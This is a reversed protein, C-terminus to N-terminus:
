LLIKVLLNFKSLILILTNSLVIWTYFILSMFKGHRRADIFNNNKNAGFKCMKLLMKSCHTLLSLLMCWCEKGNLSNTLTESRKKTTTWPFEWNTKWCRCCQLSDHDSSVFMGNSKMSGITDFPCCSISKNNQQNDYAQWTKKM